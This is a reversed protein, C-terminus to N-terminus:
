QGTKGGICILHSWTRLYMRGAAVAPTAHSKEGLPNRGLLKFQEAADVVVVDGKTSVNYIRGGVCVPSAYYNGDVRERWVPEGTAARLCQVVGGETWTFVLGGRCVSTPVYPADKKLEWAVEAAAASGKAPPRVAVVSRGKGATGCTGLILGGAVVPSSVVREPFVDGAEWNVKGTVPDVSTIGHATSTFILEAARGDAQYVCPTSYAARRSNRETEWLTKGTAADLAALFSKGLQDNPVIVTAGMAILSPGHGHQSQFPGLDRRWLDKGDHDLAVVPQEDPTGWAMYVRQADVAPTTVAYSNLGNLPCPKSEYERKWLTTGDAAKLCLLIRKASEADASTVFLRDGWVVPSSHGGGPLEVKWNYDKETWTAPITAADSVGQGNPGRFRSWEAEAAGCAAAAVGLGVAVTLAVRSAAVLRRM